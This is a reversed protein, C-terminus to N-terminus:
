KKLLLPALWNVLQVAIFGAFLAPPVLGDIAAFAVGFLIATFVLKGVEAAYFSRVIKQAARAGTHRFMRRAFYVNPLLCILGGLLASWAAAFDWIALVLPLAIAILLQAKLIRNVISARQALSAM